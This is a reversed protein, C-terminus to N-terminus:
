LDPNANNSGMILATNNGGFAFSTSLAIRPSDANFAEQFQTLHIFALEPDLNTKARHPPLKGDPNIQRSIVTWLFAAELAGAAGLTHGTLAKTSACSVEEGLENHIALAEMADNQTTGTGHLNVWGIASAPLQAKHLAQQIVKRAGEADPRPSSMHYADSSSGYGLLPLGRAPNRTMVFVAAAEGINIGDRMATFPQCQGSSLVQLAHFGNITLASLTDVGGCIVADCMGTRLLRAASILARAGSTCATSIGYRVNRLQYMEAVFDAPSSMLQLTQNYGSNAWDQRMFGYEIAARNDDSGTTSTGFVVAVRNTGYETIATQIDDEIQLLAHWLLQNNRSCFDPNLGTPFPRLATQVSGFLYSKGNVWFDSCTLYSDAEGLLANIHEHVGCGLASVMAPRSLFVPKNM